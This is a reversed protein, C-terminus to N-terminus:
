AQSDEPGVSLRGPVASFGLGAKHSFPLLIEKAFREGACKLRTLMGHERGADLKDARLWGFPLLARPEQMIQLHEVPAPSMPEKSSICPCCQVVCLSSKFSRHSDSPAIM